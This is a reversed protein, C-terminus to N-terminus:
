SRIGDHIGKNRLWWYLISLFIAAVTLVVNLALGTIFSSKPWFGFEFDIVGFQALEIIGFWIVAGPLAAITSVFLAVWLHYSILQWFSLGFARAVLFSSANLAIDGYTQLALLAAVLLLSSVFVFGVIRDYFVAARIAERLKEYGREISLRRDFTRMSWDPDSVKDFFKYVREANEPEVYVAIRKFKPPTQFHERYREQSILTEFDPSPAIALKDVVASIRFAEPLDDAVSLCLYDPVPQSPDRDYLKRLLSATVIVGYLGTPDQASPYLPAGALNTQPTPLGRFNPRIALRDVSPGDMFTLQEIGPEVEEVALMGSNLPRVSNRCAVEVFGDDHEAIVDAPRVETPTEFRGFVAENQAEDSVGTERVMTERFLDLFDEEFDDRSGIVVNSLSPGELTERNKSDVADQISFIMTFLLIAVMSVFVSGGVGFSRLAHWLSRMRGMEGGPAGLHSTLRAIWRSPMSREFHRSSFLRNFVYQRGARDHIMREPSVTGFNTENIGDLSARLEEVSQPCPEVEASRPRGDKMVVVKPRRAVVADLDHTVWILTKGPARAWDVLIEMVKEAVDPDLSATPEDAIIVDPDRVIARLLAVRQAEGGSLTRAKANITEPKLGLRGALDWLEQQKIRPTVHRVSLAINSNTTQEKLLNSAQFVFGARTRFMIEPDDLVSVPEAQDPPFFIIKGSVNKGKPILGGMAAVLTSKGSGSGGVIAVIGGRPVTLRDVSVAGRNPFKRVFGDIKFLKDCLESWYGM